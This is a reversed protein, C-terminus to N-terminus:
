AAPREAVQAPPDREGVAVVPWPRHREPDDGKRQPDRRQARMQLDTGAPVVIAVLRHAPVARVPPRDRDHDRAIVVGLPHLREDAADPAGGVARADLDDDGVVAASRLIEGPEPADRADAQDLTALVGAEGRVDVAAQPLGSGLVVHDDEVGVHQSTAAPEGAQLVRSVATLVDADDARLEQVAVVPDLGRSRHSLQVSEFPEVVPVPELRAAPARRVDALGHQGHRPGAHVQGTRRDLADPQHVLGVPHSVLVDIVAQAGPLGAQAHDVLRGRLQIVELRDSPSPLEAFALLARLAQEPLAPSVEEVRAVDARGPATQPHHVDGLVRADATAMTVHELVEVTQEVAAM